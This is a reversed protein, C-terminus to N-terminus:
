PSVRARYFRKAETAPEAFSVSSSTDTHVPTWHSLDVSAEITVTSGPSPNQLTLTFHGNTFGGFQLVPPPTFKLIAQPANM